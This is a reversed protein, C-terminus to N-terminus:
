LNFFKSSTGPLPCDTFYADTVILPGDDFDSEVM